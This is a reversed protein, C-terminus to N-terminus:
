MSPTPVQSHHMLFAILDLAVRRVTDLAHGDGFIVGRDRLV